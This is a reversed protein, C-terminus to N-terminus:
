VKKGIRVQYRFQTPTRGVLNKFTKNFHHSDYFGTELAIETVNDNTFRLLRKSKEIRLSILYKILTTGTVSKFILNLSRSNICYKRALAELSVVESYYENLYQIIEKVLKENRARKFDPMDTGSFSEERRYIKLLIDIFRCKISLSDWSRKYSYEAILDQFHEEIGHIEGSQASESLFKICDKITKHLELDNMGFTIYYLKFRTGISQSEYSVDAFYWSGKMAEYKHNNMKLSCSGEIFYSIEFLEFANEPSYWEDNEWLGCGYIIFKDWQSDVLRIFKDLASLYGKDM